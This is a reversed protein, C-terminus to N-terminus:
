YCFTVIFCDIPIQLVIYLICLIIVYMFLFLFYVDSCSLMCLEPLGTGDDIDTGNRSKTVGGGGGGWPM